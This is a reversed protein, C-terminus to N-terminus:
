KVVKVENLVENIIEFPNLRKIKAEITLIIRHNLVYPALYKIDDPIVFDRGELYAFAKSLKMLVISARPSAGVKIDEHNRTANVIDLIYELISDSIKIKKVEEIKNKLEQRSIVPKIDEIPHHDFQSVLMEKENDKEPYGIDIRIMFRDLQAEPLPFTGESEIPNQTAITFFVDPLHHTIGEVTVQKEEMAELLASQTRPTARNIEDALLVNTFLPGRKFVFQGTDKEFIYLGTLDTPLIDPTFQVRKFDLDFTKALARALMTKGVGPVDELLVHGGALLCSSIIKIKEDKGKIVKSVNEVISDLFILM